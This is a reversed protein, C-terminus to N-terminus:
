KGHSDEQANMDAVILTINDPGGVKEAENVLALVKQRVTLEKNLLIGEIVDTEVYGHLGDSSLLVMEFPIKIEDCDYRVEDYIGLANTVANRLPHHQAQSKTISGKLLMDNVLSHDNSIQCLMQRHDMVYVRSDGINIYLTGYQSFIAGVLTTAMGKFHPNDKSLKLIKRNINSTCRHIFAKLDELSEVSEIKSFERVFDEVAISAAVEGANSGGVGDCVVCGVLNTDKPHRVIAYRDQNNERKLGISSTGDIRM